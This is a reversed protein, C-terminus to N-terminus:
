HPLFHFSFYYASGKEFYFVRLLGIILILAASIGYVADIVRLQNVSKHDIQNLLLINQLLATTVLTFAILHHLYAVLASIM